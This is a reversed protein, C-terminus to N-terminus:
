PLRCHSIVLKLIFANVHHCATFIINIVEIWMLHKYTQLRIQKTHIGSKNIKNMNKEYISTSLMIEMDSITQTSITQTQYQKHRINNTNINNAQYQKHRKVTVHCTGSTSCSCSREWLVHTWRWKELTNVGKTDECKRRIRIVCTHVCFHATWFALTSTM